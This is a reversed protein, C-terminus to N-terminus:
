GDGLEILTTGAQVLDGVWAAVRQVIADTPATLAHEMKMAELVVLPQGARVSERERVNIKVVVGTLPATVHKAGTARHAGHSAVVIDPPPVAQFRWVHSDEEVEIDSGRREARLRRSRGGRQVVTAENTRHVNGPAPNDADEPVAATWTDVGVRRLHVAHTVDGARVTVTRAVGFPRWGGQWPDPPPAAPPEAILV